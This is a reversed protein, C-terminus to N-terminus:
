GLQQNGLPILDVPESAAAAGKPSFSNLVQDETILGLQVQVVAVEGIPIAQHPEQPLDSRVLDVVEGGLAMDSDAEVLRGVGGVHGGNARQPEKLGDAVNLVVGAVLDAEVLRRARLHEALHDLCGLFFCRGEIGAAGVAHGLDVAVPDRDVITLAVVHM